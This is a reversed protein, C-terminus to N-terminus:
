KYGRKANYKKLSWFCYNLLNVTANDVFSGVNIETTKAETKVARLRYIYSLATNGLCITQEDTQSMSLPLGITTMPQFEAFIIERSIVTILRVMECEASELM